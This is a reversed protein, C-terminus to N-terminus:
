LFLKKFIISLVSFFYSFSLNLGFESIPMKRSYKIANSHTERMIIIGKQALGFSSITSSKQYLLAIASDSYDISDM